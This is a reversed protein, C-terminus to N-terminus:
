QSICTVPYTVIADKCSVLFGDQLVAPEVELEFDTNETLPFGYVRSFNNFNMVRAQGPALPPRLFEDDKNLQTKVTKTRLDFKMFAGSVNFLGRNEIKFSLDDYNSLCTVETIVIRTDVECERRNEPLYLKLYAYVFVSLSIAIVVLLVYSVM